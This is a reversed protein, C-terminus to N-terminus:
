DAGSDREQQRKNAELRKALWNKCQDIEDMNWGNICIFEALEDNSMNRIWEANTIEKESNSARNMKAGCNPCYIDCVCGEKGFVWCKVCQKKM